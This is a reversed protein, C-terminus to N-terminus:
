KIRRVHTAVKKPTVLLYSGLAGKRVTVIDGPQTQVATSSETELWIQGNDLIFAQEGTPRRSVSTVTATLSEPAPPAVKNEDLARKGTASLGFERQAKLVPDVTPVATATAVAGGAAVATPKGDATSQPSRGFAKDYCALREADQAVAACPHGQVAGLAVSASSLLKFGVITGVTFHRSMKTGPSLGASPRNPASYILGAASTGHPEAGGRCGCWGSERM